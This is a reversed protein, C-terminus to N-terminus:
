IKVFVGGEEIKWEYSRLSLEPADLFVGTRIDFRWDHCPCKLIYGELRGRSVPCGMHPCKNALAYIEDTTKSILLVPLGKPFVAVMGQGLLEDAKIVQIWDNEPM